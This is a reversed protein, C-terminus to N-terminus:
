LACGGDLMVDQFLCMVDRIHVEFLGNEVIAECRTDIRKYLMERPMTLFLCKCEFPLEELKVERKFHTVPRCLIM